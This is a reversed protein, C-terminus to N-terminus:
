AIMSEQSWAVDAAPALHGRYYGSGKYDNNNATGTSIKPDLQFKNTREVKKVTKEKTLQYAVWYAQKHQKSYLLSFGTHSTINKKNCYPIELDTIKVPQMKLLAISDEKFNAQQSFVLAIFFCAFVLILYIRKM